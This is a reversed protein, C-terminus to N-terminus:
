ERDVQETFVKLVLLRHALGQVLPSATEVPSAESLSGLPHMPILLQHLPLLLSLDQSNLLAPHPSGCFSFSSQPIRTTWAQDPALLTVSVPTPLQTSPGPYQPKRKELLVKPIIVM